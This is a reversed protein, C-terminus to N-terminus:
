ALGAQVLDHLHLAGIPQIADDVVPLITISKEEMIKMAEAALDHQGVTVPDKTMLDDISHTLPNDFRELARRLDGDTLIGTLRGTADIAFVAGLKKESMVVIANRLSSQEEVSPVTEGQHMLDKVCLLLKRGLNGGPHFIAFENSTFGRLNMLSIALADCAALCATTSCTPAPSVPDAEQAVAIDLSITARRALESNMNGTLAIVPVGVRQFFPVLSIVEETEGSYSLALVVDHRSVIGM